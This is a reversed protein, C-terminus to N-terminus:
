RRWTLGILSGLGLAIGITTLPHQKTVDELAEEISYAVDQAADMVTGGRESADSKISGVNDHAQKCGRRAPKTDTGTFAKIVDAIQGSLASIGMKVAAVDKELRENIANEGDANSM